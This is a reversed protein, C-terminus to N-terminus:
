KGNLRDLWGQTVGYRVIEARTRLGLKSSARVKYTEVTKASVELRAAIEKNSYGEATFRLVERERESLEGGM